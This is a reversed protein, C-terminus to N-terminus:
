LCLAEKLSLLIIYYNQTQVVPLNKYIENPLDSSFTKGRTWYFFMPNYRPKRKFEVMYKLAKTLPHNLKETYDAFIKLTTYFEDLNRNRQSLKKFTRQDIEMLDDIFQQIM